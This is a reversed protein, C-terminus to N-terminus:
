MATTERLRVGIWRKARNVYERPVCHRRAVETDTGGGLRAHLAQRLAQPQGGGFREAAEDVLRLVQAETERSAAVTYPTSADCAERAPTATALECKSSKKRFHGRLHRWAVQQLLSLLRVRGGHQWAALFAAPREVADHFASGVADEVLATDARPFARQIQRQLLINHDHCITGILQRYERTM